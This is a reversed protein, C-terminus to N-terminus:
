CKANKNKILNKENISQIVEKKDTYIIAYKNLNKNYDEPNTSHLQIRTRFIIICPRKLHIAEDLLDFIFPYNKENKEHLLECVLSELQEIHEKLEKKTM